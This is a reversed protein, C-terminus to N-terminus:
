DLLHHSSRKYGLPCGITAPPPWPPMWWKPWCPVRALLGFSPAAVGHCIRSTRNNQHNGDLGFSNPGLVPAMPFEKFNDKWGYLSCGFYVGYAAQTNIKTHVAGPSRLLSSSSKSQAELEAQSDKSTWWAELSRELTRRMMEM